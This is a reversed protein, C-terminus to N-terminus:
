SADYSLFIPIISCKGIATTTSHFWGKEFQQGNKSKIGDFYFAVGNSAIIPWESAFVISAMVGMYGLFPALAPCVDYGVSSM